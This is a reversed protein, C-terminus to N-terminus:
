PQQDKVLAPVLSRRIIDAVQVQAVQERRLHIRINVLVRVETCRHNSSSNVTSFLTRGITVPPLRLLLHLPRPM